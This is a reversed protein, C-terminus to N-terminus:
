KLTNKGKRNNLLLIALIFNKTKESLIMALSLM